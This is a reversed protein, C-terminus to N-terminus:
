DNEMLNKDIFNVRFNNLKYPESKDATKMSYNNLNGVHGYPRLFEAPTLNNKAFKEITTPSAFVAVYPMFQSALWKRITVQQPTLEKTMEVM